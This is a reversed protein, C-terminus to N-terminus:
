RKEEGPYYAEKLHAKIEDETFWFDKLTRKVFLPSQDDYHPSDSRGTASGFPHLSQRRVTGDKRWQVAWIHSDGAIGRYRGDGTPEGYVAHLVDPAGGIPLDTSGRQLRNIEGYPIDLRGHHRHLFKAAERLSALVEENAPPPSEFDILRKGTLRGFYTLVGLAAHTNTIDTSLDWSLLHDLALALTDSDPRNVEKLQQISRALLSNPDFALDYKYAIAEEYSISADTGLLRMARRERNNVFTEIGFATSYQEPAPNNKATTTVFPTGNANMVFGTPPDIVSPLSSYPLYSTWRTSSSDGPLYADWQYGPNRQPLLANYIYAIHGDKNAFVTNFMPIENVAMAHHWESANQAKGMQYWQELIRFKDYGAYRIAYTGHDTRLTPGYVSDYVTRRVPIRLPGLIKVRLTLKRPKLRHWEGDYWYRDPDNPDTKLVFIDILDPRNVTHTWGLHENFGINPVPSGPFVGGAVNWGEKSKVHAEYWAFPGTWPQHTNAILITSEDTTRSPAIAFANSGHPLAEQSHESVPSQREEDFLDALEGPVGIFAAISLLFGSLIDTGEVPFLRRYQVENKHLAAYHNLGKAYGECLAQTTSDLRSFLSDAKGPFDFFQVFFDFPAGEKGKYYAASARTSLLVEQIQAFDDEAHAYALGFAADRDTRGLIHPIGWTDRRIMVDEEPPIGTPTQLSTCGGFLVLTVCFVIFSSRFYLM